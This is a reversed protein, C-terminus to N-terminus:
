SYIYSTTKIINIEEFSSMNRVAKEEEQNEGKSIEDAM